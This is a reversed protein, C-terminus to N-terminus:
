PLDKINIISVNENNIVQLAEKLNLLDENAIYPVRALNIDAAIYMMESYSPNITKTLTGNDHQMNLPITINDKKFIVKNDLTIDSTDIDTASAQRYESVIRSITSNFLDTYSLTTNIPIPTVNNIEPNITNSIIVQSINKSDEEQKLNIGDIITQLSKKTLNGNYIEVPTNGTISYKIDGSLQIDSTDYKITSSPVWYDKSDNLSKIQRYLCNKFRNLLSDISSKNNNYVIVFPLMCIRSNKQVLFGIYNITGNDDQSFLKSYSGGTDINKLVAYIQGKRGKAQDTNFGILGLNSSGFLNQIYKLTATEGSDGIKYLGKSQVSEATQLYFKESTGPVTVQIGSKFYKWSIYITGSVDKDPHEGEDFTTLNAFYTERSSHGGDAYIRLITGLDGKFGLNSARIQEYDIGYAKLSKGVKDANIIKILEGKIDFSITKTNTNFNITPTSIINSSFGSGDKLIPTNLFEVNVLNQSTDLIGYKLLNKFEIKTSSKIDKLIKIKDEYNDWNPYESQKLLLSSYNSDVTPNDQGIIDYNNFELNSINVYNNINFTSFNKSNETIQSNYESNFVGNTFLTNYVNYELYSYGTNGIKSGSGESNGFIDIGCIRCLYFNNYRLTAYKSENVRTQTGLNNYIYQNNNETYLTPTVKICCPGDYFVLTCLKDLVDKGSYSKGDNIGLSEKTTSNLNNSYNPDTYNYRQCADLYITEKSYDLLIYYNDKTVIHTDVKLGGRNVDNFEPTVPTGDQLYCPEVKESRDFCKITITSSGSSINSIPYILSANSWVDYFEIYLVSCKNKKNLTGRTIFDYTITVRPYEIGSFDKVFETLYRWTTSSKNTLLGLYDLTNSYNLSNKFGFRSYPLINITYSSDKNLGKLVGDITINKEPIFEFGDKTSTHKTVLATTDQGSNELVDYETGSKDKPIVKIDQDIIIKAGYINNYSDSKSNLSFELDYTTDTSNIINGLEISFEDVDEIEVVIALYGNLKNNYVSYFSEDKVNKLSISDFVETSYYFFKPNTKLYRSVINEIYTISGDEGIRALHLSFVKRVGGNGYTTIYRNFFNNFSAKIDEGNEGTLYILFKDGPRLINREIDGLDLKIYSVQLGESSPNKDNYFNNKSLITILNDPLEDNTINREPSPFSGIECEGTFPNQSVIYIIGGYQKIGLPIFDPKLKCTEVRGNGSDNQLIFENGDFTILTGNLCDTLVTNPVVTDNMDMLLGGNFSNQAIEM